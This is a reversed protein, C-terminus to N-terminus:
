VPPVALGLHFGDMTAVVVGATFLDEVTDYEGVATGFAVGELVVSGLPTAANTNSAGSFTLKVSGTGDDAVTLNQITSTGAFFDQFTLNTDADTTATPSDTAGPLRSDATYTDLADVLYIRDVGVEFDKIVDNGNGARMSYVFTDATGDATAATDGLAGGYLTDDGAQGFLLDNGAGGALTEAGDATAADVTVRDIIIGDGTEPAVVGSYSRIELTTSDADGQVTWTLTQRTAGAPASTPPNTGTWTTGDFEAQLAGGWYVRLSTESSANSVQMSLTYSEGEVTSIDQSVVAGGSTPNRVTDFYYRGGGGTDDPIMVAQSVINMGVNAGSATVRPGMADAVDLMNWGTQSLPGFTFAAGDNYLVSGAASTNWYEFQHNRVGGGAGGILVDDGAGGDVFGTTGALFVGTTDTVYTGATVNTVASANGNADTATVSATAGSALTGAAFAYAGTTADATATAAGMTVTSGAEAVGSVSGDVGAVATPAGPATADITVPRTGATSPNGAADTATASITTDGDAPVEGAAFDVSWAGAGDATATKTTSGWTVAVTSGAEATGAVAVGAAAEAANVIDNTAVAGIVPAGPATTDTAAADVVVALTGATSTNGAADRATANITSPGDAPVEGAAFNVSWAGAADATATKTTSGWTVTVTSGAEATGAVAVGAAAEAASVVNDGAVAGVVPANPATTDPPTPPSDSSGGGGGAAAALGILAGGVLAAAPIGPSGAAAPAAGAAGSTPGYMLAQNDALTAVPQSSQTIAAAQAGDAPDIVLSCPTAPSCDTYFKTLEVTKGEPLNDVVLSDGVKRATIGAPAKGTATDIIKVKGGPWSAVKTAQAQLPTRAVSGDAKTIELMLAM